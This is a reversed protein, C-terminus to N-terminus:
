GRTTKEQRKPKRSRLMREISAMTKQPRFVGFIFLCLLGLSVIVAPGALFWLWRQWLGLAIGSILLIIAVLPGAVRRVHRTGGVSINWLLSRARAMEYPRDLLAWISIAEKCKVSAGARDGLYEFMVEAEYILWKGLEAQRQSARLIDELESMPRTMKEFDGQKALIESEEALLRRLEQERFLQRCLQQQEKVLAM